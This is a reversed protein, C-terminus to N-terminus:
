TLSEEVDAPEPTEVNCCALLYFKGGVFAISSQGQRFALLRRAHEGCVFPIRERGDLTLVSVEDGMSYWRLTGDDYNIAGHPRFSRPRKKDLKYADAVKAILRVTMKSPLTFRERLAYYALHHLAFQGFTKTAWAQESLWNCGENIREMARRLAAGQEKTPMLKVKAVLIM